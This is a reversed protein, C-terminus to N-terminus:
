NLQELVLPAMPQTGADHQTPQHNALQMGTGPKCTASATKPRGRLVMLMELREMKM